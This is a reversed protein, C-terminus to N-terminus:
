PCPVGADLADRPDPTETSDGYTGGGTTCGNWARVLWYRVAGVAPDANVDVYPTDAHDNIGCTASSYNDQAILDSVLGTVVDYVTGSGAAADQSDWALQTSNGLDSMLLNIVEAAPAKLTSDAPACDTLNPEGDGDSDSVTQVTLIRGATPFVAGPNSVKVTVARDEAAGTVAATVNCRLVTPSQQNCNNVTVDPGFDAMAGALFGVGIIDVDATQGQGLVAPSASTVMVPPTRETILDYFVDALLTGWSNGGNQTIRTNGVRFNNGATRTVLAFYGETIFTIDGPSTPQSLLIWVDRSTPITVNWQDRVDVFDGAATAGNPGGSLVRGASSVVPHALDPLNPNNPDAFALMTTFSALNRGGRYWKGEAVNFPAAPLSGAPFKMAYWDDGDGDLLFATIPDGSQYADNKLTARTTPNQRNAATQGNVPEINIDININTTEAGAAVPVLSAVDSNDTATGPSVGDGGNGTEGVNYFETLAPIFGLWSAVQGTSTPNGNSVNSNGITTNYRNVLRESFWDSNDFYEVYVYYDGPPLGDIRYFGAGNATFDPGEPGLAIGDEFRSLSFRGAVGLLTNPDIAVVHVGDADAGNLSIFGTISGLASSYSAEPYYRGSSSFDSRKLVRLGQNDSPPEDDIFPYMVAQWIPDHSLGFLHGMEHTAIAQVDSSGAANNTSMGQESTSFTNFQIDGDIITGAPYTGVPFCFGAPPPNGNADLIGQGAPCGGGATVTFPETLATTPTSALYGPNTGGLSDASCFTIVNTGDGGVTRVTTTGGYNFAIRSDPDAQWSNFAAQIAPLLTGVPANASNYGCPGYSAPDHFRWPLPIMSNPWVRTGIKTGNQTIVELNATARVSQGGVMLTVAGVAVVGWLRTFRPRSM